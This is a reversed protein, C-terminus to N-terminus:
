DRITHTQSSRRQSGLKSLRILLPPLILFDILLALAMTASTLLGMDANLKFSSTGLVFFGAVLALTTIWLAIGVGSFASRVADEASLKHERIARLYKSIFHITDDVVIGLTMATVFALSMGIEAVFIGWLGFAVAIPLLNPILSLLGYKVSRFVLILLLSIIILAVSTGLLMSKINTMGIHAFMITPSSGITAITPTNTQMWEIIRQEFKLIEATKLTKLTVSVRTSSKDIDIQNNLDLGYPLSMEYLLLYQAALDRQEPLKYWREDDAHLNKNLRKMTDTISNVHVVEPQQQMWSAFQSVQKQFQPNSVGGQQESNLSFDVFYLGGLHKSVYESDVRFDIREDFYKVFNDNLQNKLVFGSLSVSIILGAWLLPKQNNIVFNALQDMLSTFKTSDTKNIKCPLIALMAPLFTVAYIFAFIVGIASFNGLHRFPPADSFNLAMFGIATTLSTFFIPMFNVRLSERIADHKHKGKQVEQVWTVLLHVCDAVALTMIITPLSMLPTTLEVGFWGVFGMTTIVTFILVVFVTIIRFVGRIFIFVILLILALSLPILHTVDYLSSEAFANNMIVIGSLHFELDPYTQKAHLLLERVHAAVKPVEVNPNIGPLEVTINIATIHGSASVLRHVLTPETTSVRRIAQLDLESLSATDEILNEVILDDETSYTHQYNSLSDVRISYPTQWAKETLDVVAALTQRTFVDNNPPTVTILVNDNKTYTDQLNEFALLQPNGGDFFARYDNNFGLFRAGSAAAAVIIITTVIVLYRFRIIFNAYKKLMITKVINPLYLFRRTLNSM